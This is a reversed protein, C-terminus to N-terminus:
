RVWVPWRRKLESFFERYDQFRQSPLRCVVRAMGNTKPPAVMLVWYNTGSINPDYDVVVYETHAVYYNGDTVAWILRWRQAPEWHGHGDAEIAWSTGSAGASVVEPPLNTASPLERFNAVNQVADYYERPIM